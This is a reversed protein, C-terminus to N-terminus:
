LAFFAFIFNKKAKKLMKEGSINTQSFKVWINAVLNCRAEGRSCGIDLGNPVLVGAGV